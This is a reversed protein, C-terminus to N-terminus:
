SADSVGQGGAAPPKGISRLLGSMDGMRRPASSARLDNPQVGLRGSVFDLLGTDQPTGTRTGLPSSGTLAAQTLARRPIENFRAFKKDLDEEGMVEGAELAFAERQNKAALDQLAQQVDAEPDGEMSELAALIGETVVISALIGGIAGIAM